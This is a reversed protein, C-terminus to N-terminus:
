RGARTTPRTRGTSQAAVRRRGEKPDVLLPRLIEVRDGARVVDTPAVLRSFIACKPPHELDPIREVMGSAALADAVTAGEPVQITRVIQRDPLAYVVSVAILRESAV